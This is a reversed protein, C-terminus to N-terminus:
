VDDGLERARSQWGDLFISIIKEVRAAVENNKDIHSPPTSHGVTKMIGMALTARPAGPVKQVNNTYLYQKQCLPDSFHNGFLAQGSWLDLGIAIILRCWQCVLNFSELDM